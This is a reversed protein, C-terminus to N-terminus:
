PSGGALELIAEELAELPQPETMFPGAPVLLGDKWTVLGAPAPPLVWDRGGDDTVIRLCGQAMGTVRWGSASSRAFVLYRQAVQFRSAGPVWLGVDGLEGGPTVIV